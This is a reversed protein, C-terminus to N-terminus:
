EEIATAWAWALCGHSAALVVAVYCCGGFCPNQFEM